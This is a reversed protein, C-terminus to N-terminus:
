TATREEAGWHLRQGVSKPSGTRRAQRQRRVALLLDTRGPGHSDAPRPRIRCMSPAPHRRLYRQNLASDDRRPQCLVDLLHVLLRRLHRPRRYLADRSPSRRSGVIAALLALTAVIEGLWQGAGSRVHTSAQILPLDFMVNALLAGALGGLVQAAAYIPLERFPFERRLVGCLANGGPQFARGIRPRLDHDPRCAWCRDCAYQGPPRDRREWRWGRVWSAPVSSWPSSSATGSGEAVSTAGRDRGMPESMVSERAQIPRDQGSRASPRPPRAEPLAPCCLDQDPKRDPPIRRRLACAKGCRTRRLRRSRPLGLTGHDASGALRSLSRRGRFRLRHLRLGLEAGRAQRVRGLGQKELGATPLKLLALLDLTFPHVRGTPHSGASFARFHGKGWHNLLVEAMVSRASNGTCLFLVNYVKDQM